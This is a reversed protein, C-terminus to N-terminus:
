PLKSPILKIGYLNSKATNVPEQILINNERSKNLNCQTEM